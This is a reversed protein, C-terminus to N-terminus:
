GFDPLVYLCYYYCCSAMQYFLSVHFILELFIRFICYHVIIITFYLSMVATTIIYNVVSSLDKNISLFPIIYESLMCVSWFPTDTSSCVSSNTQTKIYAACELLVKKDCETEDTRTGAVDSSSLSPSHSQSLSSHNLWNCEFLDIASQFCEGVDINLSSSATSGSKIRFASYAAQTSDKACDLLIGLVFYYILLQIRSKNFIYCVLWSTFHAACM